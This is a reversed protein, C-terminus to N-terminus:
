MASSATEASKKTGNRQDSDVENLGSASVAPKESSGCWQVAEAYRSTQDCYENTVKKLFLAIRATVTV